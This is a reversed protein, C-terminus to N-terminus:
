TMGPVSREASAPVVPKQVVQGQSNGSQNGGTEISSAPATRSEQGAQFSEVDGLPNLPVAPIIQGGPLPVLGEQASLISCAGVACFFAALCSALRFCQFFQRSGTPQIM